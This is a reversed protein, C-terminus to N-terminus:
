GRRRRSIIFPGVILFQSWQKRVWAEKPQRKMNIRSLRWFRPHQWDLEISWGLM